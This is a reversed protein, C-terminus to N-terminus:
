HCGDGGGMIAGVPPLYPVRSRLDYHPGGRQGISVRPVQSGSPLGRGAAPMRGPGVRLHRNTNIVSPTGRSAQLSSYAAAGRLAFPTAGWVTGTVMGGTYAGSDYDITGSINLFDRILIPILFADGFGVIANAVTPGASRDDAAKPCSQLPAGPEEEAPPETSSGASAGRGGGGEGSGYNVAGGSRNGNALQSSDLSDLRVWNRNYTNTMNPVGDDGITTVSSILNAELLMRLGPLEFISRPGWGTPDTYRMPGNRVYAYGNYDQGRGPDAVLPDRSLFRGIRPDYVRWKPSLCHVEREILLSDSNSYKQGQYQERYNVVEGTQTSESSKTFFCHDRDKNQHENPQNPNPRRKLLNLYM